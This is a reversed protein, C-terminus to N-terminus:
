AMSVSLSSSAPETEVGLPVWFSSDRRSKRLLTGGGVAFLLGGRSVSAFEAVPELDPPENRRLDLPGLMRERNANVEFGLPFVVVLRSLTRPRGMASSLLGASSDGRLLGRSRPGRRGGLSLLAKSESLKPGTEGVMRLRM